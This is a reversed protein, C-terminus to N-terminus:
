REVLAFVRTPSGTGGVIPLPAVVITAGTAPLRDLNQLSTLGYTDAGLLFHHAPFPPEFGGAQGSDIGVTEVGYGVVRPNDALWKAGEATIAMAGAMAAIAVGLVLWFLIRGPEIVAGSASLYGVVGGAVFAVLTLALFGLLIYLAIRKLGQAM